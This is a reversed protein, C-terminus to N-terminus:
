ILLFYRSDEFKAEFVFIAPVGAKTWTAHDSCAYGCQTYAHKIGSYTDSIMELTDSLDKDINDTSIAIIPDRNAPQYATMDNHFVCYVPIQEQMYHAVVKQSGLLGGEEGSYFHFEIPRSPIFGNEVLITLAEIITTTGSGDDDAGPSRGFWPNWMNVSDQHASIVVIPLEQTNFHELRAIISFQKWPHEFKKVTLTVNKVIPVLGSLHKYLWEASDRGYDSKFYRTQFGSFGTLFSKMRKEDVKTKYEEVIEGHHTKNPFM